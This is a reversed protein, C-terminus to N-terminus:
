RGEIGNPDPDFGMTDEILIVEASLIARRVHHLKEFRKVSLAIAEGESAVAKFAYSVKRVKDDQIDRYTIVVTAQM